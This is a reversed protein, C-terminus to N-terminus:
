ADIVAIKDGAKVAIYEPVSGTAVAGTAITATPNAGITFAVPSDCVVKIVDDKTAVLAGQASTAGSTIVESRTTGGIFVATVGNTLRKGVKGFTVYVDAM